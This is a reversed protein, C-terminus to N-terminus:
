TQPTGELSCCLGAQGHHRRQCMLQRPTSTQFVLSKAECNYTIRPEHVIAVDLGNSTLRHGNGEEDHGQQLAHVWFGVAVDDLKFPKLFSGPSTDTGRQLQEKEAMALVLGRSLGYFFGVAFPPYFDEAYEDKSVFWKHRVVRGQGIFEERFPQGRFVMRGYYVYRLRAGTLRHHQALQMRRRLETLDPVITNIDFQLFFDAGAAEKAPTSSSRSLSTSNMFEAADLVLARVQYSLNWYSEQIDPLFIIDGFRAAEQELRQAAKPDDPQACAFRLRSIGGSSGTEGGERGAAFSSSASAAAIYGQLKAWERLYQRAYVEDARCRVGIALLPLDSVATSVFWQHPSPVDLFLWLCLAWAALIVCTALFVLSLWSRAFNCRLLRLCTLSRHQRPGLDQGGVTASESSSASVQHGYGSATGAFPRTNQDVRTSADHLADACTGKPVRTSHHRM